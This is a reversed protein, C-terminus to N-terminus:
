EAAGKIRAMTGRIRESLEAPSYDGRESGRTAGLEVPPGGALAMDLAKRQARM